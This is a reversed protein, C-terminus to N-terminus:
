QGSIMQRKIPSVDKTRLQVLQGGNVLRSDLIHGQFDCVCVCM